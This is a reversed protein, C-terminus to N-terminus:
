LELLRAAFATPILENDILLMGFESSVDTLGAPLARSKIRYGPGAIAPITFPSALNSTATDQLGYRVRTRFVKGPAAIALSDIVPNATGPGVNVANSLDVIAAHKDSPVQYIAQSTQQDDPSVVAYVDGGGSAQVSVTGLLDVGSDNFVRNVALWNGGSVVVPTTGTLTVAVMRSVGSVVDLGVVEMQQTDGADTSVIELAAGAPSPPFIYLPQANGREWVDTEVGGAVNPCHGFKVETEVGAVMGLSAAVFYAESVIKQQFQLIHSM